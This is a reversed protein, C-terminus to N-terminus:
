SIKTGPEPTTGAGDFTVVRGGAAFIMGESLGFKMQRPKLNVVVMVKRDVLVAPDPYTGRL